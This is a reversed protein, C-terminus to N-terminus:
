AHRPNQGLGAEVANVFTKFKEPDKGIAHFEALVGAVEGQEIDRYFLERGPSRIVVWANDPNVRLRIEMSNCSARYIEQRPGLM